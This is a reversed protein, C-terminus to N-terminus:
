ADDPDRVRQSSPDPPAHVDALNRLAEVFALADEVSVWRRFRPRVLV